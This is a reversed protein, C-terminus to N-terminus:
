LNINLGIQLNRTRKIFFNIEKDLLSQIEMLNNGEIDKNKLLEEYRFTNSVNQTYQDDGYPDKDALETEIRVYMKDKRNYDLEFMDNYTFTTPTNESNSVNVSNVKATNWILIKKVDGSGEYGFVAYIKGYVSQDTGELARFYVVNVSGSTKRCTRVMFENYNVVSFTANNSLKSLKYSIPMGPNNKGWNAGDMILKSIAPIDAAVLGAAGGASGGIIVASLSSQTLKSSKNIAATIETEAKVKVVKVSFQAEVNMAWESKIEQFSYDSQICVYVMRGYNVGAVYVPASYSPMSAALQATTVSPAFFQRPTAPKDVDITYYSQIFRFIFKNKKTTSNYNLSTKLKTNIDVMGGLIKASANSSFGLATNLNSESTVDFYEFNMLSASNGDVGKQILKSVGERVTSLAPKDIVVSKDGILNDMNTSITMSAREALIPIYEGTVVSNGDLLSGPYIVDNQPNMVVQENFGYGAAVKKVTCYYDKSKEVVVQGVQITDSLQAQVPDPSSKIYEDISSSTSPAPKDVEKKKCSSLFINTALFSFILSHSFKMIIIIQKPM